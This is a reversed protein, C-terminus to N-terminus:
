ARKRREAHMFNCKLAVHSRQSGGFPDPVLVDPVGIHENLFMFDDELDCEQAWLM